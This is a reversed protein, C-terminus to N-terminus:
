AQMKRLKRLARICFFFLALGIAIQLAFVWSLQTSSPLFAFSSVWPKYDPNISQIMSNAGDDSGPMTCYWDMLYPSALLTGSVLISFFVYKLKPM